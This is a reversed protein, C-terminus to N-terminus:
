MALTEGIEQCWISKNSIIIRQAAAAENTLVLLHARAADRVDVVGWQIKLMGPLQNKLMRSFFAGSESSDDGVSPGILM